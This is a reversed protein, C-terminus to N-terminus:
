IITCPSPGSKGGSSWCVSAWIVKRTPASQTMVVYPSSAGVVVGGPPVRGVLRGVSSGRRGAVGSNSSGASLLRDASSSSRRRPVCVLVGAGSGSATVGIGSTSSGGRTVVVSRGGSDGWGVVGGLTSSTC